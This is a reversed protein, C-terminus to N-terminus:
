MIRPTLYECVAVRSGFTVRNVHAKPKGKGKVKGKPKGKDIGKGKAPQYPGPSILSTAPEQLYTWSRQKTDQVKQRKVQGKGGKPLQNTTFTPMIVERKARTKLYQMIRPHEHPTYKKTFSTVNQALLKLLEAFVYEGKHVKVATFTANLTAIILKEDETIQKAVV